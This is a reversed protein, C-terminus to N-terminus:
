VLSLSHSKYVFVPAEPWHSNGEEEEEEEAEEQQPQAVCVGLSLRQGLPPFFTFIVAAWGWCAICANDGARGRGVIKSLWVVSLVPQGAASGSGLEQARQAWDLENWFRTPRGRRELVLEQGLSSLGALM